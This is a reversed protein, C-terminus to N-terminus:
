DAYADLLDPLVRVFDHADRVEPLAVHVHVERTSSAPTAAARPAVNVGPSSLNSSGNVGVAVGPATLTGAAVVAAAARRTATQAAGLNRTVGLALGQMLYDGQQAFVRSPSRIGLMTKFKSLMSSGAQGIATVATGIAGRIGNAVGLVIDRGLNFATKAFNTFLTRIGTLLLTVGQRARQLDGTFLGVITSVLGTVVMRIANLQTVVYARAQGIVRQLVAAAAPFRTAFVTWLWTGLTVLGNIIWGFTADFAQQLGSLVQSAGLRVKDFDGTFLGVIMNVLGTVTRIIGGAFDIVRTLITSFVIVFLTLIFGLVWGVGYTLANWVGGLRAFWAGVNDIVGRVASGVPALSQVFSALDGQLGAWAERLPALARLIEDRFRSSTRWAFAFAAGLGVVALVLWTIPNALIPALFAWAASAAGLLQVRLGTLALSMRQLGTANQATQRAMWPIGSRQWAGAAVLNDILARTNTRLALTKQGLYVRTAALSAASNALAINWLGLMLLGVGISSTLLAVATVTITIARAATPHEQSFQRLHRSATGLVEAVTRVAPALNDGATIALNQASNKLLQLSNATTDARAAYEKHMSGAYLANDGVLGLAARYDDLNGVIKALDDAYEAGFLRGLVGISDDSNRVLELVKLIAGQADEGVMRKVKEASLGIMELGKHFPKAQQEATALRMYLANIGTAAVEPPTKLKLFTAGLAAVQQGTLGILKGTSGARTLINVIDSAKSGMNNSLQNTADGLLRVDDQTLKFIARLGAMSQGADGAAMDFAVGMEAADRAFTKIEDRAIKSQGAAAAIEAFGKAAIPIQDSLNMMDQRMQEFQAPAPFDVVKKVDAMASEFQISENVALALPAAIATSAGMLSAGAGLQDMGRQARIAHQQLQQLQRLPGQMPGSLQDVLRLVVSLDFANM